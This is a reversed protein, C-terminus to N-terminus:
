VNVSARQKRHNIKKILTPFLSNTLRENGCYSKYRQGSRLFTFYKNSPHSPDKIIIITMRSGPEIDEISTKFQGRDYPQIKSEPNCYEQPLDLLCRILMFFLVCILMVTLFTVISGMLTMGFEPPVVRRKSNWLEYFTM